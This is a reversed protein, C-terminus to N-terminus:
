STSRNHLNESAIQFARGWDLGLALAAQYDAWWLEADAQAAEESSLYRTSPHVVMSDGALLWQWRDEVPLVKIMPNNM